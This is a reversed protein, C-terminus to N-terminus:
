AGIFGWAELLSIAGALHLLEVEGGDYEIQIIPLRENPHAETHRRLVDQGCLISSAGTRQNRGIVVRVKSLLEKRKRIDSLQLIVSGGEDLSRAVRDLHIKDLFEKSFGSTEEKEDGVEKSSAITTEEYKKNYNDTEKGEIPVRSAAAQRIYEPVGDSCGAALLKIVQDYINKRASKAKGFSCELFVSSIREWVAIESEPTTDRRFGDVWAEMSMPFVELLAARILRVRSMLEPSLKSHRIPAPRVEGVKLTVLKRPVGKLALRKNIGTYLDPRIVEIIKVGIVEVSQVGAVLAVKDALSPSYELLDSKTIDLWVPLITKGSEIEKSVLGSLEYEPWRKSLFAKSLVVIGFSSRALGKDISRSLSDGVSLSFEDYWVRAGAERLFEALPRVFDKKDESAHSIFADFKKDSM